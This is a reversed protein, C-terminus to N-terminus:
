QPSPQWSRRPKACPMASRHRRQETRARGRSAQSAHRRSTRPRPNPSITEIFDGHQTPHVPKGTTGM